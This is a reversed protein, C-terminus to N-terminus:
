DEGKFGFKSWVQCPHDKPPGRESITDSQGWVGVLIAAMALFLFEAFFDKFIKKETVVQPGIPVM